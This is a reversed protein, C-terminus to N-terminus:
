FYSSNDQDYSNRPQKDKTLLPKDYFYKLKSPDINDRM